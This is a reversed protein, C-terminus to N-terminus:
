PIIEGFEEAIDEDTITGDDYMETVSSFDIDTMAEMAPISSQLAAVMSKNYINEFMRTQKLIPAYLNNINQVAITLPAISDQYTQIATTIGPTPVKVADITRQLKRMTVAFASNNFQEQMRRLADFAPMNLFDNPNNNISM